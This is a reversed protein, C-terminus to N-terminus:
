DQGKKRVWLWRKKHEKMGNDAIVAKKKWHTAMGPKKKDDGGGGSNGGEGGGGGQGDDKVLKQKVLTPVLASNIWTQAMNFKAQSEFHDWLIMGTAGEEILTKMTREVDAILVPKGFFPDATEHSCFYPFVPKGKGVRQSERVLDALWARHASETWYHNHDPIPSGDPLVHKIVYASPTMVDLLEWAWAYLEDNRKRHPNPDPKGYVAAKYDHPWSYVGWKSKPRLKKGLEITEKYYKTALADYESELLADLNPANIAGPNHKLFDDRWKDRFANSAGAYGPGWKEYDLIIIGDFDPDPVKFELDKAAKALHQQFKKPKLMSGPGKPDFIGFQHEYLIVIDTRFEAPLKIMNAYDPKGPNTKPDQNNTANWYLKLAAQGMAPVSWLAGTAAVMWIVKLCRM